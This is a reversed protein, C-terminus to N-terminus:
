DKTHFPQNEGTVWSEKGMQVQLLDCLGSEAFFVKWLDFGGLRMCLKLEFAHERLAKTIVWNVTNTHFSVCSSSVAGFFLYISHTPLNVDVLGWRGQDDM